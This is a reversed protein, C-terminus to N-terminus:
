DTGQKTPLSCNLHSFAKLNNGINSCFTKTADSNFQKSACKNTKQQEWKDKNTLAEECWNGKCGFKMFNDYDDKSEKCVKINAELLQNLHEVNKAKNKLWNCTKVNAFCRPFHKLFPECPDSEPEPEPHDVSVLTHESGLLQAERPILSFALWFLLYEASIKRWCNM